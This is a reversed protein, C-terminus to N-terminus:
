TLPALRERPAEIEAGWDVPKGYTRAYGTLEGRNHRSGSCERGSPKGTIQSLRNHVVFRGTRAVVPVFESCDPCIVRM